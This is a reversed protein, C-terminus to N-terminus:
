RNDGNADDTDTDGRLGKGPERITLYADLPPAEIRTTGGTPWHVVVEDVSDAAGLGFVMRADHTSYLGDNTRLERAQV